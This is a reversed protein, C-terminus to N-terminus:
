PSASAPRELPSFGPHTCATPTKSREFSGVLELQCPLVRPCVAAAAIAIRFRTRSRCSWTSSANVAASPMSVLSPIRTRRESRIAEARPLAPLTPCCAVDRDPGLALVLSSRQTLEVTGGAFSALPSPDVRALDGRLRVGQDGLALLGRVVEAVGLPGLLRSTVLELESPSFGLREPLLDLARLRLGLGVDRVCKPWRLEDPSVKGAGAHKGSGSGTM